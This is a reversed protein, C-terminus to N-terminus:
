PAEGHLYFFVGTGPTLSATPRDLLLHFPQLHLVQSVCIEYALRYTVVHTLLLIIAAESRGELDQM